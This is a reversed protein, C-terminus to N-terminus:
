KFVNCSDCFAARLVDCRNDFTDFQEKLFYDPLKKKVTTVATVSNVPTLFFLYGKCLFDHMKKKVKRKELYKQFTCNSGNSLRYSTRLAANQSERLTKNLSQTIKKHSSTAQNEKHLPQM